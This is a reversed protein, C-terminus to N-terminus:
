LKFPETGIENGDEDYIVRLMRDLPVLEVKSKIYAIDKDISEKENEEYILDKNFQGAEYRPIITSLQDLVRKELIGYEIEIAGIALMRLYGSTGQFWWNLDNDICDTIFAADEGEDENRSDFYDRLEEKMELYTADDEIRM